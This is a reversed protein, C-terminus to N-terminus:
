WWNWCPTRYLTGSLKGSLNVVVDFLQTAQLNLLGYITKRNPLKHDTEGLFSNVPQNIHHMATGIDLSTRSAPKQYRWNIGAAFDGYIISQDNFNEGTAAGPNYEGGQFQNDTRINETKFRRQAGRLQVGATLWHAKFIRHTYSGNLGIDLTGLEADGAEDLNLTAGFGFFSSGDEAKFAKTDFAGTLTRYGVPVTNWQTRYNATVRSEGEFLGTMAPNLLFPAHNFQSYHIDQAFIGSALLVLLFSLFCHKPNHYNFNVM